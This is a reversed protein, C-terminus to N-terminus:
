YDISDFNNHPMSNEGSFWSTPIQELCARALYSAFIQILFWFETEFM